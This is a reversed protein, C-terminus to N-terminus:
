AKPPICYGKAELQQCLQIMPLGILTNPDQSEIAEFLMIGLGESKFSGVTDYPQEARLYREIAANSLTKFRVNVDEVIVEASNDQTDLLCLSTHFVVTRGSLAQLQEVAREHTEPKTLIEGDLAALQDSAIILAGPHRKAVTQAKELALRRVLDLGAENPQASEDIDASDQVFPLMLKDLLAKRYRSQSALVLPQM